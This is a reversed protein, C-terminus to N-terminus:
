DAVRFLREMPGLDSTVVDCDFVPETAAFGKDGPFHFERPSGDIPVFGDGGNWEGPGAFFLRWDPHIFENGRAQRIVSGGPDTETFEYETQKLTVGDITIEAGTLRDFGRVRTRTGDDDSLGFEFTDLGDGVLDSFSAPDPPSPDLTQRMPPNIDFSEVWQTERDIRSVFFIGQQDFDARWQDGPTDASCKYYNSVRCGRSQVTLWTECGEPPTFSGAAAPLPVATAAVVLALSLDIRRVKVAPRFGALPQGHCSTHWVHAMREGAM